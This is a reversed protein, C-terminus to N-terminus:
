IMKKFEQETIITVGLEQAKDAKSGANEGIIVFDTNKSVSSASKGGLDRIVNKIEDRTFEQLTGTVVINKGELVKKTKKVKEIEIEELLENLRDRKIEDHFYEYISQAVVEGVDSVEQLQEISANQIKELTQFHQALTIATEEGVHHIGLAFILRSLPIKRSANISDLTNQASKEAFRDLQELEEKKLKYIDAAHKILGESALQEIIKDGLGDINMGKKSVFHILGEIETAFCNKNSCYYAVDGEKRKEVDSECVPCKKPLEIDKQTGDRLDTIVSVVKPIIDGAKEIVVTDGIKVGLRQIEDWNHLTAHQVITGAVAVPEFTALPTLVGTRGVNWDVAKVITTTQEAPFKYAVMGRPAKGVVGFSERIQNNNVKVVLGDILFEQKNRKETWEEYFSQVEKLSTVKKNQQVVKFGLKELKAHEEDKSTVDIGSVIEYAFFDLKRQAALKPDLQRISGAALNRPNAFLKEGKSEQQANIRDFESKSMYIEGRIEVTGAVDEKLRLPISEITKVNQTVDEGVYSDGRTAATVLVSDQYILSIAFGDIKLEIYYEPKFTPILKQLRVEWDQLEEYNFIDVLSLMRKSHTVKEFKDLAKGAVRQTPSDPTVLDPFQNELEQLEHKLADHAADSIDQTDLVHYEYRYKNILEKLQDIRKKAQSKEM